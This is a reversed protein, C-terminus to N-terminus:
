TCTTSLWMCSLSVNRACIKKVLMAAMFLKSIKVIKVVNNACPPAFMTLEASRISLLTVHLVYTNPVHQVSWWHTACQQRLNQDVDVDAELPTRLHKARSKQHIADDCSFCLLQECSECSLAPASAHCQM